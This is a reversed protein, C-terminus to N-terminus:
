NEELERLRWRKIANDMGVSFANLGDSSFAVGLIAKDHKGLTRIEKGSSVDWLRVTNDESGSLAYRGDTSLALCTVEGTHGEFVRAQKRAALDWLRLTSDRSGSLAHRGDNSLAVCSVLDTHGKLDDIWEKKKLDWLCLRGEDHGSLALCGDGSIALCNVQDMFRKMIAVPKGDSRQPDWMCISGHTCGSLVLTGEDKSAHVALCTIREGWSAMIRPNSKLDWQVVLFARTNSIQNEIEPFDHIAVVVQDAAPLLVMALLPVLGRETGYYPYSIVRSANTINRLDYKQIVYYDGTRASVLVYDGNDAFTASRLKFKKADIAYLQKDSLGERVMTPPPIEEPEKQPEPRQAPKSRKDAASGHDCPQPKKDPTPVDNNKDKGSGDPQLRLPPQVDRDTADAHCDDSDQVKALWHSALKIGGGILIASLLLMVAALFARRQRPQAARQLCEQDLRAVDFPGAAVESVSEVVAAPMTDTRAALPSITSASPLLLPTPLGTVLTSPLGVCGGTEKICEQLAAALEAPTQYRDDPQKALLRRVVAAVRPSVDARRSEVPRPITFRHKILKDMLSGDAFPPQGSLLYYLTCGLSYLDSRIDVAHADTAQEPSMYDPTGMVAGAHTLASAASDPEIPGRLLALGMDLIKITGGSATDRGSSLLQPPRSVALLLNSPKIDRHVLGREFAHQLGLAAQRIFDCAQGVPLPGSEHVMRALDVGVAYEMVLFYTDGVQNADHAIIINPHSLQAVAHIERHFRPAAARDILRDPRIIKLAVTRNMMQHRAKFVQGMGGEGLRDLLVYQGLVLERARGAIVEDAQFISLWGREVLANLLSRADPLSSLHDPALERQQEDTLLGSALLAEVLDSISDTTMAPYETPAAAHVYAICFLRAPLRLGRIMPLIM